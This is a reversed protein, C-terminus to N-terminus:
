GCLWGLLVDMAIWVYRIVGQSCIWSKKCMRGLVRLTCGHSDM